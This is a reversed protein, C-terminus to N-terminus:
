RVVAESWGGVIGDYDLGLDGYASKIASDIDMGKGLAQLTQNLRHWGYATVMYSVLAHSQEYANAADKANLTSFGKELKRFDVAAAKAANQGPRAYQRRGFFEAIGENLWQPCNGRTMDYVLVHAYEHFLIARMPPTIEKFAGFPVRIKGDYAGGSWDPADTVTKYDGRKYIAVPVHAEPFHGLEAGVQNAASELVDLIALAFSTTVGPDYTLDFRSSHGSDMGSEVNTEKRARALLGTIDGRGPSLKLAQELLEMAEKRNETEYLTLGLFLLLEVSDPRAPRARELEYRAIDYRKLHYNSIGRLIAYVSEEPYLEIAGTITTDALAYQKQKLLQLGRFAYADALRRKLKQDLPFLEQERRLKEISTEYDTQNKLGLNHSNDANTQKEGSDAFAGVALVFLACAIILLYRTL